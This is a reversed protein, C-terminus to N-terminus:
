FLITAFSGVEDFGVRRYTARAPANFDNVYLTVVPYQRRALAVVQAMMPVALGRGRLDPDLWVGQVQCVQGSVSGLDSKYRIRGGESWGFARGQEILQRVYYRYPGPNGQVPSVGVEETYMAVAADFYPDIADMSIPQVREDPHVAPDDDIVMLPQCARVERANAWGSGWRNILEHWLPIAVDSPGIISSCRRTPGAYQAFATIAEPTANVPVFNAGAHLLSVLENDEWYGWVPCGLTFADLGGQRIRASVFVNEVPNGMLLRVVERLDDPDLIDVGHRRETERRRPRM